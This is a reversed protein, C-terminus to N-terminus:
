RAVTAVPKKSGRARRHAAEYEKIRQQAAPSDRNVLSCEVGLQTLRANRFADDNRQPVENRAVLFRAADAKSAFGGRIHRFSHNEAQYNKQSHNYRIHGLRCDDEPRYVYNGVVRIERGDETAFRETKPACM